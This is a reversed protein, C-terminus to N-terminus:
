DVPRTVAFCTMPSNAKFGIRNDASWQTRGYILPKDGIRVLLHQGPKIGQGTDILMGSVSMNRVTAPRPPRGAVLRASADIKIRQPRPHHGEIRGHDIEAPSAQFIRAADPLELGFQRGLTWKVKGTYYTEEDISIHLIQGIALEVDAEARAGTASVDLIRADSFVDVPYITAHMFVARRLARRREAELEIAQDTGDRIPHSSQSEQLM